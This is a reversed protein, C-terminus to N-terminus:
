MWAVDLTMDLRTGVQSLACEYQSLFHQGALFGPQWCWSRIVCETVNDQFM